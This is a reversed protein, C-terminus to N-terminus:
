IINAFSACAMSSDVSTRLIPSPLNGLPSDLQIKRTQWCGRKDLVLSDGELLHGQRVDVPSCVLNVARGKMDQSISDVVHAGSSTWYTNFIPQTRDLKFRLLAFDRGYHNTTSSKSAGYSAAWLVGPKWSTFDASSFDPDLIESLRDDVGHEYIAHATTLGVITGDLRILGGITCAYGAGERNHLHVRLGCPSHHNDLLPQVKIKLATTSITCTDERTGLVVHPGVSGITVIEDEVIDSSRFSSRSISVQDRASGAPRPAHLTVHIPFRQLVSIHAINKQVAKQCEKSGCRIWITPRLAITSRGHVVKGSMCFEPEITTEPRSLALPLSDIVPMLRNLLPTRFSEVWEKQLSAPPMIEHLKGVYVNREPCYINTSNIFELVMHDDMSQSEAGAARNGQQEGMVPTPTDITGIPSSVLHSAQPSTILTTADINELTALPDAVQVISDGVAIASLTDGAAAAIDPLFNHVAAGTLTEPVNVVTSIINNTNVDEVTKPGSQQRLRKWFPSKLMPSRGIWAILTPSGIALVTRGESSCDEFDNNDNHRLPHPPSEIGSVVSSHTREPVSTSAPPDLRLTTHGNTASTDCATDKGQVPVASIWPVKLRRKRRKDPAVCPQPLSVTPDNTPVTYQPTFLDTLKYRRPNATSVQVAMISHM